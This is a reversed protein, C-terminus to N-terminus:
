AVFRTPFTVSPEPNPKEGAKKHHSAPPNKYHGALTAALDKRNQLPIGIRKLVRMKDATQM